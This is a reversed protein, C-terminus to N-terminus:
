KRSSLSKQSRNLEKRRRVPQYHQAQREWRISNEQGDRKPIEPKSPQVTKSFPLYRDLLINNALAFASSSIWYIHIASPMALTLPGVALVVIKIANGMRRQFAGLKWGTRKRTREQYSINAFMTASLIFPLIVHPDPILLDPFWLAGESALSPEIPVVPAEVVDELMQKDELPLTQSDNSAFDLQSDNPESMSEKDNTSMEGLLNENWSNQVMGILGKRTGCMRRITEIVVLWVPLQLYNLFSKWRQTGTQQYIEVSKQTLKKALLQQCKEPGAAAHEKIIEKRYVHAWEELLPRHAPILPLLIETPCIQM